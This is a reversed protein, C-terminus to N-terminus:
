RSVHSLQPAAPAQVLMVLVQMLMRVGSADTAMLCRPWPRGTLAVLLDGAHDRLGAAAGCSRIPWRYVRNGHVHEVLFGEGPSGVSGALRGANRCSDVCVTIVEQATGTRAVVLTWNKGVCFAGHWHAMRGNM